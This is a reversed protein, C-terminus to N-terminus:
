KWRKSKGRRMRTAGSRGEMDDRHDAAAGVEEKAAIRQNSGSTAENAPRHWEKWRTVERRIM